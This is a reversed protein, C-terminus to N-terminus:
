DYYFFGGVKRSLKALKRLRKSIVIEDSVAGPGFTFYLFILIVVVVVGGIIYTSTPISSPTTPKYLPKPINKADYFSPPLAFLSSNDVPVYPKNKSYVPGPCTYVSFNGDPTGVPCKVPTCPKCSPSSSPTCKVPGNPCTVPKCTPPNYPAGSPTNKLWTYFQTQCFLYNQDIQNNAVWGKQDDPLNADFTDLSTLPSSNPQEVLYYNLRYNTTDQRENGVFDSQTTVAYCIPKKNPYALKPDVCDKSDSAKGTCINNSSPYTSGDLEICKSLAEHFGTWKFPKGYNSPNPDPYFDSYTPSSVYPPQIWFNAILPDPSLNGYITKDATLVSPITIPLAWPYMTFSKSISPLNNSSTVTSTVTPQATKHPDRKYNAVFPPKYDPPTYQVCDISDPYNSYPPNFSLDLLLRPDNYSYKCQLDDCVLPYKQTPDFTCKNNTIGCVAKDPTNSMPPDFDKTVLNQKYYYTCYKDTCSLPFDSISPDYICQVGSPLISITKNGIQSIQMSGSANSSTATTANPNTKGVCDATYGPNPNLTCPYKVIPNPFISSFDPYSM